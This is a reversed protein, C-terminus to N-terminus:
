VIAMNELINVIILLIIFISFGIFFNRKVRKNAKEINDIAAKYEQKLQSFKRKALADKDARMDLLGLYEKVKSNIGAGVIGGAKGNEMLGIWKNAYRIIEETPMSNLGVQKITTGCYQCESSIPDIPSGCKICEM